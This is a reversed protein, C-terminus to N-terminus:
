ALIFDIIRGELDVKEVRVRVEDGLAYIKKKNRGILRYKEKDLIYYDDELSRISIMGEAFSDLDRVYIGWETIGSIVAKRKQGVKDIMYECKKYAISEREADLAKLENESALIAIKEYYDTPKPKKGNIKKKIIRHVTLDAYRRIPSTFHTYKPFSLGFHGKNKTTYYAKTMSRLVINSVLFEVTEGEIESMLENLKHSTIKKGLGVDYGLGSLFGKLEEITQTDPEEHVRFLFPKGGFKESVHKNALLMLEEILGHTELVEKKSIDIPKGRGDLDFVVEDTNFKLAGESIRKEYLNNSIENLISLVEHGKEIEKMADEYSFRKDSKIVTEGVWADSVKGKKDVKFVTSFALKREGPNLSCLDNSLIEPLMPITEGVMYISFGRKKAEEDIPTKEKVYFSVDAIHVGVEFLDDSIKKFSIADDFDEATEPDITFTERDTMDKRRKEENKKMGPAKKELEQAQRMVEEPFGIEMGSELVIAEREVEEAGKRGLMRVIKGEPNNKSAPWSTIEVLAKHGHRVEDGVNPVFIDTYMRNDDPVIFCFNKGKKDVVGVFREKKRKLIDVVEGSLQEGKKEPFLAIEVQDGNLATNLFKPEIKIDEKQEEDSFYGVGSRTITIKGKLNSKKSM